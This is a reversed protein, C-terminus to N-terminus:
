GFYRRRSKDTFVDDDPFIGFYAVTCKDPSVGDHSLASDHSVRCLEFVHHKEVLHLHGMIVIHSIGDQTVLSM